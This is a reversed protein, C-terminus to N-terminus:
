FHFRVEGIVSRGELPYDEPLTRIPSPEFASTNFVNNVLLAASMNKTINNKRLSFNVIAYDDVEPRPDDPSRKRDGIWYLQTNLFWTPKFEWKSMLYIQNTPTNSVRTNTDVDMAYQFAYNGQLTFNSSIDWKGTLEVGYGRQEGSNQAFAADNDINPVYQILDDIEYAFLNLGSRISFIPRYDFALEITNITEPDLDSNGLTVPNNSNFMEVFTPPRFARGYLLKTTLNPKTEWVLSIRPNITNGFDSYHDYRVGTVLSWDKAFIWEDQLSIYQNTRSASKVYVYPTNTVDTVPTTSVNITPPPLLATGDLVGPGFNKTEKSEGDVYHLGTALRWRHNDFGTYFSVFDFRYHQEELGPNGIVGEPFLVLGTPNTGNINGDSGIPVVSNEPFLKQYTGGSFRLYSITSSIEWDRFLFPDRFTLDYLQNNGSHTYGEPDLAHALGDGEGGEHQWWNWAHLTWRDYNLELHLDSREDGTSLSGPAYSVDTGFVNDLLTQSDTSIIRGDDGNTSNHEFTFAVNLEDWNGGYLAWASKTNFSGYRVGGEVGDIDDANKTIINIVGSVADAGFIASGPGHVVEIRSISEVPVINRVSDSRDGFYSLTIPIGNVLMLVHPNFNGYMGRISVIDNLRTQSSIIHIGPISELVQSLTTAGMDKIDESTVVAAVAPAESMPQSRGTALTIMEGNLFDILSNSIADEQGFSINPICILLITLLIITNHKM